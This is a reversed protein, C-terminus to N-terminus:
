SYPCVALLELLDQQVEDGVRDLERLGTIPYKTADLHRARDVCRIHCTLCSADTQMHAVRALSDSRILELADKLWENLDILMERLGMCADAEAERDRSVERAAHATVQRDM